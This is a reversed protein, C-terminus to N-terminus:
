WESDQLLSLYKNVTNELSFMQATEICTAPKIEDLKKVAEPLQSLDNCIFGNEGDLVFENVAGHNMTVIPTSHQFAELITQCTWACPEELYPMIVAKAKALLQHKLLENIRGYIRIQKGDAKQLLLVTYRQDSILIDEGAIDLNMHLQRAVDIAVQAGKSKELRGLFLLRDGRVGPDFGSPIPSPFYYVTKFMCGLKGSMTQAMVDSTAIMCPFPIPPASQYGLAQYPYCPSFLKFTTKKEQKYVCTYKLNSFDMVVDFQPLMTKYQGYARTEDKDQAEIINCGDPVHSGKLCAIWIESTQASIKALEKAVHYVHNEVPAYSDYPMTHELPSILLIKM